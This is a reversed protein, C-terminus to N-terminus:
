ESMEPIAFPPSQKKCIYYDKLYRYLMATGIFLVLVVAFLIGVKYVSSLDGSIVDYSYFPRLGNHYDGNYDGSDYMACGIPDIFEGAIAIVSIFHICYFIIQGAFVIVLYIGNSNRILYFFAFILVINPYLYYSEYIDSAIFVFEDKVYFEILILVEGIMYCMALSLLFYGVLSINRLISLINKKWKKM